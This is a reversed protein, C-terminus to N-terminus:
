LEIIERPTKHLREVTGDAHILFNDCVTVFLRSNAWSPHLGINMDASLTMTEDDRILPREVVDYGQGHCHLRVEEPLHDLRVSKADYATVIHLKGGGAQAVDAAIMVAERATASDDAGVVVTSYM